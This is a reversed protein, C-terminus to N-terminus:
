FGNAAIVDRYFYASQKPTRVQTEYDVYVIGFRKSYGFAWEFNDMLSWVFYGGLRAGEDIARQTAALHSRLYQERAPDPVSGNAAIQDPYAAGNETVLLLPPDYDHQLRVLLARLADPYVEWDMDTYEGAPHLSEYGLGAAGPADRIVARNYFNVGLFDTAVAITAMDGERIPPMGGQAAYLDLMDPPYGRGYLPDAFWRNFFGDHRRAAAQDAPSESAPYAPSFNLTAGVQAGASAARILPVAVGHSLLVHHAAALTAALDNKIGPAHAGILHGLFAVCWPENHTIWHKVRDGLRRAVQDAYAAFADVIERNAWGGRDQLGQPLDWHYLTAYPTIGAELLGDVLRDYFDLGAANVPGSGGPIVRPWAISFRYAQLGLDRMLAIDSRWLEYHRCAPEGTHGAYVAGPTACFRDWISESRGDANIAGEIQFSATASGWIFGEPFTPM